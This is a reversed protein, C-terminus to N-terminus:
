KQYSLIKLERQFCHIVPPVLNFFVVPLAGTTNKIKEAWTNKIWFDIQGFIHKDTKVFKQCFFIDFFHRLFIDFFGPWSFVQGSAWGSAWGSIGVFEKLFGIWFEFCCGWFHPPARLAGGWKQAARKLAGRQQKSNQILKKYSNTPIEPQAEPQAEPWTKKQGPNKTM